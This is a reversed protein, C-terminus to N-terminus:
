KKANWVRYVLYTILLFVAYVAISIYLSQTDSTLSSGIFAFLLMAPIKGIASATAFPLLRISLIAPYINVIAQPILPMLRAFLITMFPHRELKEHLRELRDFKMLFVRAQKQFLYRALLFIIISAVSAASWSILAGLLPGYIFGLLGIVVKYPIVPVLIFGMAILFILYLPTNGQQIGYLIQDKYVYFIIIFAVYLIGTQWKNM